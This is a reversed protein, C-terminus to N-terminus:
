KLYYRVFDSPDRLNIPEFMIQLLQEPIISQIDMNMMLNLVEDLM